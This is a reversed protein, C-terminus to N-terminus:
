QLFRQMMSQSYCRRELEIDPIEHPNFIIRIEWGTPYEAAGIFDAANAKIDGCADQLQQIREERTFMHAPASRTNESFSLSTKRRHRAKIRGPLDLVTAAIFAYRFWLGFRRRLCWSSIRCVLNQWQIWAGRVFQLRM